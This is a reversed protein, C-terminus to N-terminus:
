FLVLSFVRKPMSGTPTLGRMIGSQVCAECKSRLRSAEGCVSCSLEFVALRAVSIASRRRQLLMNPAFGPSVLARVPAAALPLVPTSMHERLLHFSALDPHNV